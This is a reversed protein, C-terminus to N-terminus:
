SVSASVSVCICLCLKGRARACVCVCLCLCVLQGCSGEGGEREKGERGSGRSLVRLTQGSRPQQAGLLLRVWVQARRQKESASLSEDRMIAAIRAPSVAPTALVRAEAAAQAPDRGALTSATGFVESPNEELGLDLELGLQLVVPAAAGRAQEGEASDPEASARALDSLDMVAQRQHTPAHQGSASHHRWRQQMELSLDRFDPRADPSRSLCREAVEWMEEDGDPPKSLRRTGEVIELTLINDDEAEWYPMHQALDLLEWIVV